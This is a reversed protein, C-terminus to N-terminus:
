PFPYDSSEYGNNNGTYELEYSNKDKDDRYDTSGYSSDDMGYDTSGYSDHKKDKDDRYDTSGYSSDDM